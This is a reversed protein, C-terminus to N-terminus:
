YKRLSGVSYSDEEEQGLVLVSSQRLVPVWHNQVINQRTVFQVCAKLGAAQWKVSQAIEAELLGTASSV